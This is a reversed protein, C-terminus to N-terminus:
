AEVFGASLIKDKDIRIRCAIFEGTFGQANGQPTEARLHRGISRRTGCDAM